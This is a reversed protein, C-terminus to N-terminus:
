TSWRMTNPDSELKAVLPPEASGPTATSRRIAARSAANMNVGFWSLSAASGRRPRGLRSPKRRCDAMVNERPPTNPAAPATIQGVTKRARLVLCCATRVPPREPQKTVLKTPRDASQFSEPPPQKALAKGVTVHAAPITPTASKCINASFGNNPSPGPVAMISRSRIRPGRDRVGLEGPEQGVPESPKAAM